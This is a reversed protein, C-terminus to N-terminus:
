TPTGGTGGYAPSAVVADPLPRSARRRGRSQRHGTRAAWSCRGGDSTAGPAESGASGGTSGWWSSDHLAVSAPNPLTIGACAATIGQRRLLELLARYLATGMGRGRHGEGIYVTVDATWRYAARSRHASGYAFGATGGDLEAVLFPYSTSVREILRVMEEGSPPVEEFSVATDSVFPAYIAACPPGDRAPDAHRINM